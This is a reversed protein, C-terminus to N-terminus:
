VLFSFGSSRLFYFYLCTLFIILHWIAFCDDEVPLYFKFIHLEILIEGSHM